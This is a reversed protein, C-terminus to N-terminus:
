PRKPMCDAGAAKITRCLKGADAESGLPGVQLRTVGGSTVYFPRYASLGSVKGSLSSWLSKARGEESFAGLQVRWSGGAAPAPAANAKPPTAAAKAPAPAPKPPVPVAAATRTPPPPVPRQADRPAPASKAPPPAPRAAAAVQAAKEDKEIRAALALGKQRQDAPIYNDMQKLSDTAQPLGQASARTMFAYARVWDKGILEGNFLTTGLIYQARAEGRAASKQIYPIAEARRNQQFLLLGYNDEARLHGQVAAKRYWELAVPIDTASVGRGLKYAQGMNFQADPDGADALPRWENVARLYDGQNWADVGAKVDAFAPASAGALALSAMALVTLGSCIRKM